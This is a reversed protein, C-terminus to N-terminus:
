PQGGEAKVAPQGAANADPNRKGRWWRITVNEPQSPNEKEWAQAAAQYRLRREYAAVLQERDTTYLEHLQRIGGMADENDPNGKVLVFGPEKPLPPIIPVKPTIVLGSKTRRPATSEDRLLVLLYYTTSGVKVSGMNRMVNFDFNSWAQYEEGGSRWELLTAKHDYVTGSLCLMVVPHARREELWEARRAAIEEPTLTPVVARDVMPPEELPVLEEMTVIRGGQAMSFRQIVESDPVAPMPQRPAPPVFGGADAPGVHEPTATDSSTVPAPLTDEGRLLPFIVVGTLVIPFLLQKMALTTLNAFHKRSILKCLQGTM